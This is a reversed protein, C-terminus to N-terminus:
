ATRRDRGARREGAFAASLEMGLADIEGLRRDDDGRRERRARRDGLTERLDGESTAQARSRRHMLAHSGCLTVDDAGVRVVVLM